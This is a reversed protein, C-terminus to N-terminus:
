AAAAEVRTDNYCAGECLDAKHPPILANVTQGSTSTRLWAGKPSYIKPEASPSRAM